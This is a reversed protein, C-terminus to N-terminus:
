GKNDPRVKITLRRRLRTLWRVVEYRRKGAKVAGRWEKGAAVVVETLRRGAPAKRRNCSRSGVIGCRAAM